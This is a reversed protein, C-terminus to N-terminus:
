LWEGAFSCPVECMWQSYFSSSQPICLLAPRLPSDWTLQSLLSLVKQVASCITGAKVHATLM